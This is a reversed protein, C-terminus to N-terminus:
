QYGACNDGTPNVCCALCGSRTNGEVFYVSLCYHEVCREIAREELTQNCPGIVLALSLLRAM